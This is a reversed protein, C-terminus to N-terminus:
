NAALGAFGTPLGSAAGLTDLAGEAGIRFSVIQLSRPAVAFLRRGDTSVALDTTGANPGTVGAVASALEIRGSRAIRYSSVNSTAANGTYAYRGNPTIAVWCAAGQTNSVSASILTPVASREDFRYSSAASGPAESVILHDRRDFAFGFPTAGSSATVVTAGLTGDRRVPYSLIRNTAKETVVIVDGDAGFGVQAPATGGAASLGRSSGAIPTLQGQQLRFGAVNGAGGANLVYVLGDHETVSIPQLGGSDVVSSLTVGGDRIAFTSVTNSLANVVFAHRGDGSLTVAGQSGLGAGTGQGNTAARAVLTLAGGAQPAYVLLENGGPANSSTFVKGARLGDDDHAWAPLATIAAALAAIQFAVRRRSHFNM